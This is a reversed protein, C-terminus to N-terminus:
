RGGRDLWLVAQRALERSNKVNLKTKIHSCHTEVTKVSLNLHEAIERTNCGEGIWRFVELERDSLQEIPLKPSAGSSGFLSALARASEGESLYIEGRLTKRVAALLKEPPEAKM